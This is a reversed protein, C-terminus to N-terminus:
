RFPSLDDRYAELREISYYEKTLDSSSLIGCERRLYKVVHEPNLFKSQDASLVAAIRIYEGDFVATAMRILPRIDVEREGSKTNKLVTISDRSLASTIQGALEASAGDTFLTISYAMWALSAFGEEPYYAETVQMEPTMNRNLREMAEAPDIRESLRVDLFECNSETGISLPAAFVMKPKPNFGETYWLPLGARVIVKNMTRVLDLHSIYQLSGKKFFRFRIVLKSNNVQVM